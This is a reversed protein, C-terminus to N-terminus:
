VKDKDKKLENIYYSFLQVEHGSCHYVGNQIHYGCDQQAIGYKDLLTVYKPCGLVELNIAGIPMHNLMDREITGGKYGVLKANEFTRRLLCM